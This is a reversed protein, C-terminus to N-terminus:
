AYLEVLSKVNPNQYYGVAACSSPSSCSVANFIAVTSDAPEPSTLVGWHRGDWHEILTKYFAGARQDGVAFCSKLAPCSIASLITATSGTPSIGTMIGWKAGNWHEILLSNNPYYNGVGFCSQPSPCSVGLLATSTSLHPDLIPMIGWSGGNWHEVLSRTRSAITDRGVAFCSQPSPCSVASLVTATSHNPNVSPLVGWASGNWHEVLTRTDGAITYSGVAFCSKASPCAVGNLVTATSHNPNVSAPVSWASGNWREVLSRTDGAITYSGVAFCSKAGPCAVGNLVTTTSGNPDVSPMVAWASGNWHKVLASTGAVTTNAGVAFCSKPNPCAIGSLNIFLSGPRNPNPSLSWRAAAGAPAGVTVGLLLSVTVALALVVSRHM